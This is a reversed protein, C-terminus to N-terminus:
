FTTAGDRKSSHERGCCFLWFEKVSCGAGYQLLREAPWDDAIEIFQPAPRETETETDPQAKM